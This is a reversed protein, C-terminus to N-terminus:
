SQPTLRLLGFAAGQPDAVIAFRGGPFDQPSVMETAGAALAKKFTDDVNEVGFYAMWYSPVAPPVMPNMEMGGAISAEGLHFETYPPVKEGMQSQHPDWGFVKTYFPLAGSLGRSNLEAWSFANPVGSGFGAMDLPQWASIIAGSPDAFVAMRGQNGVTMPPAIVTGGAAQVRQSLGDADETGIYIMWASPAEPSM